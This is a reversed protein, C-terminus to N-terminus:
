LTVDHHGHFVFLRSLVLLSQFVMGSALFSLNEVDLAGPASFWM